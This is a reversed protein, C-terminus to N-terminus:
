YAIWIWKNIQEIDYGNTNLIASAMRQHTDVDVTDYHLELYVTPKHQSLVHQAGELVELEHGEVDIKLADPATVEGSKVLADLSTKDVRETRDVGSEGFFDPSESHARHLSAKEHNPPVYLTTEGAEKSIATTHITVRDDFENAAVNKELKRAITSNPEFSHITSESFAAAVPLTYYGINAGVDIIVDSDIQRTLTEGLLPEDPTTNVLEFSRYTEGNTVHTRPWAELGYNTDTIAYYTRRGM